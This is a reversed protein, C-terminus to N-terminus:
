GSVVMAVWNERRDTMVAAPASPDIAMITFGVRAASWLDHLIV